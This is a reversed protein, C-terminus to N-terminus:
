FASRHAHLGQWSCTRLRQAVSMFLHMVNIGEMSQMSGLGFAVLHTLVFLQSLHITHTAKPSRDQPAEEDDAPDCSCNHKFCYGGRHGSAVDDYLHEGLSHIM